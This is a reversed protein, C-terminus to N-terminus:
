YYIFADFIAILLLQCYCAFTAASSAAIMLIHCHRIADIAYHGRLAQRPLPEVRPL